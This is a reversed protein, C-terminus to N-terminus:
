EYTTICKIPRYIFAIVNCTAIIKKQLTVSVHLWCWRIDFNAHILSCSLFLYFINPTPVSNPNSVISGVENFINSLGSTM